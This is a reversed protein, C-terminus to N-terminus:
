AKPAAPLPSLHEHCILWNGEKKVLVNTGRGGGEAQKGQYTGQWQYQYICAAAEATCAIWEVDHIRYVEDPIKAWTQEFVERLESMGRYTGDSFLYIANEALMKAVNDFDHSNTADEYKKMFAQLDEVM